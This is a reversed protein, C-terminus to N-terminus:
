EVWRDAFKSKQNKSDSERSDKKNTGDKSRLHDREVGSQDAKRWSRLIGRAYNVFPKKREISRQLAALVDEDGYEKILILLSDADRKTPSPFTNSYFQVSKYTSISLDERERYEGKRKKEKRQSNIDVNQRNINVNERNINVDHICGSDSDCLLCLKHINRFESPDILLYEEYAEVRKRRECAKFYRKQIGRSTLVGFSNFISEDFFGRKVLEIVISNALSCSIEGNVGGGTSFLRATDENWSIYYGNRYIETLLYITFYVGKVGYKSMVLRIKVDSFMDVDFPFFDLGQKYIRSM